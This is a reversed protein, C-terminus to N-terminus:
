HLINDIEPHSKDPFVDFQEDLLYTTWGGQEDFDPAMFKNLPKQAPSSVPRHVPLDAGPIQAQTLDNPYAIDVVQGAWGGRQKLIHLRCAVPTPSLTIRLAAPSAEAASRAPRFLVAMGRSAQAALQLKRLQHHNAAGHALWCLVAGAVDGRLLQEVAWLQEIASRTQIVVVQEPPIGTDRFAPAYPMYPPSVFVLKQNQRACQVLTPLLVNLEGIGFEDSLLEIVAGPPWGGQHLDKNLAPYGTDLGHTQQSSASAQWIDPRALLASLNKNM